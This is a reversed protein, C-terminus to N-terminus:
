KTSCGDDFEVQTLDMFPSIPKGAHPSAPITCSACVAGIPLALLIEEEVLGAVTLDEELLRADWGEEELEEPPIAKESRFWVLRRELAVSWTVRKLCRPCILPLSGSLFLHTVARQAHDREPVLRCFLTGEGIALRDALRELRTPPINGEWVAGSRVFAIPDFRAFPLLEGDSM